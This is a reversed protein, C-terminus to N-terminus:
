FDGSYLNAIRNKAPKIKYLCDLPHIKSKQMANVWKNLVYSDVPDLHKLDLDHDISFSKDFNDFELDGVESSENLHRKPQNTRLVQSITVEYYLWPSETKTISHIPIVSNPTNLFFLCESIDMMKSLATSLMMQVHSTSYNRKHYDFTSSNTNKTYLTDIERLLIDAYGWICSDIFSTLNFNCKIWGALAIALNEDKHSHSIFIDANILPFWEKQLETGTIRNEKYIFTKLSKRVISNFERYIDKGVNYYYKYDDVGFEIDSITFGRYVKTMKLHLVYITEYRREM